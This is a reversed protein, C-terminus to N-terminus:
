EDLWVGMLNPALNFTAGSKVNKEWNWQIKGVYSKNLYYYRNSNTDYSFYDRDNKDYFIM